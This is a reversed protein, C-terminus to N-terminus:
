RRAGHADGMRGSPGDHHLRRRPNKYGYFGGGKRTSIASRHGWSADPDSFKERLRGGKSVYRQENAYAPLDSGDVAVKEGFEPLQERLSMVVQAIATDLLAKHERLKRTFRYCADVSPFRAASPSACRTTSPSSHL